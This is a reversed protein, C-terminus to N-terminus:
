RGRHHLGLSSRRDCQQDRILIRNQASRPSQYRVASVYHCISHQSYVLSLRSSLASDTRVTRTPPQLCAQLRHSSSRQPPNLCPGTKGAPAADLKPAKTVDFECLMNAIESQTSLSRESRQIGNDVTQLEKLHLRNSSFLSIRQSDPRLLFFFRSSLKVRKIQGRSCYLDAM